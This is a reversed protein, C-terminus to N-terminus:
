QQEQLLAAYQKQLKVEILQQSNVDNALRAMRTQLASAELGSLSEFCAQEIVANQLETMHDRLAELGQQSRRHFGGNVVRAREDLKQARKSLLQETEKLEAFRARV